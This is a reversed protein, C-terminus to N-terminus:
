KTTTQQSAPKAAGDAAGFPVAKVQSGPRARQFGEMMVREGAKLGENVLWDKGITRDVKIVRPEVKDEAGVVMVVAEGAPNRTVGQQPILIGQERVGEQVIGRVFMGPLLLHHPNPFLARLTVSGTSPDVTVDSFKLTGEEPYSSGDELRLRIMAEDRGGKTLQGSNLEAILKLREVSSQTFDIYIPDLQQITALPTDQSAKVLAGTTVQSKGIRGAIPATVKTYALNIQATRLAAEAVGIEANAGEIAAKASQIDAEGQHMAAAADDLDQSSVAKVPVLEKYRDVKLRLPTLNAEARALTAEAGTKGTKARTLAAKASAVAAEYPAPDIQYLVEGAQVDSGEVFLRQQIIGGVQPRVEAILHPSTRGPLERTLTVPAPTVTVVAVEPTITQPRGAPPKGCGSFLLTGLLLGTASFWSIKNNRRM